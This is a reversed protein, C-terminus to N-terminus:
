KKLKKVGSAHNKPTQFFTLFRFTGSWVKPGFLPDQQAGKEKLIRPGRQSLGSNTVESNNFYM